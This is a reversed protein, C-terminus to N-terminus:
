LLHGGLDRGFVKFEDMVVFLQTGQDLFILLSQFCEHTRIKMERSICKM